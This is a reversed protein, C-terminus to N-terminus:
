AYFDEIKNELSKLAAEAIEKKSFYVTGISCVTAAGYVTIAKKGADYAIYFKSVKIDSWDVKDGSEDKFRLLKRNIEEFKAVYEAVPMEVFYNGDAYRMEDIVTNAEGSEKVLGDDDIYFYKSEIPAREWGNLEVVRWENDILAKSIAIAVGEQNILVIDGNQDKAIALVVDGTENVIRRGRNEETLLEWIKM